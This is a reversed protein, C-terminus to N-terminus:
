SGRMQPVEVEHAQLLGELVGVHRSYLGIETRLRTIEEDQRNLRGTLAHIQSSFQAELKDRQDQQWQREREDHRDQRGLMWKIGGGFAVLLATVATLIAPLTTYDM